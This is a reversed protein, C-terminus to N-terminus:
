LLFLIKGVEKARWLHFKVVNLGESSMYCVLLVVQVTDYVDCAVFFTSAATIYKDQM